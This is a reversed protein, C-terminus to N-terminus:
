RQRVGSSGPLNSGTLAAAKPTGFPGNYPWNFTSYTGVRGLPVVRRAGESQMENSRLRLRALVHRQGAARHHTRLLDDFRGHRAPADSPVGRTAVSRRLERGGRYTATNEDPAHANHAVDAPRVAAAADVVQETAEGRGLGEGLHGM